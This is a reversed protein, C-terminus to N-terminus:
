KVKVDKYVKGNKYYIDRYKKGNDYFSELFKEGNEKYITFIGNSKGNIFDGESWINGNEFWYIWHGERKNNVILGKSKVKGSAYRTVVINNKITDGKLFPTYKIEDKNAVTTDNKSINKKNLNNNVCSTISFLILIIIIINKM